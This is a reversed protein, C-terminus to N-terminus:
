EYGKWEFGTINGSIQTKDNFIKIYDHDKDIKISILNKDREALTMVSKICFQITKKEEEGYYGIRFITNKRENAGYRTKKTYVILFLIENQNNSDSIIWGFQSIPKSIHPLKLM